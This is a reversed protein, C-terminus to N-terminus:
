PCVGALGLALSQRSRFLCKAARFKTSVGLLLCVLLKVLQNTLDFIQLQLLILLIFQDILESPSVRYMRTLALM